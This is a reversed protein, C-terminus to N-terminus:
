LIFMLHIQHVCVLSFVILDIKGILFINFHRVYNIELKYLECVINNTFTKNFYNM